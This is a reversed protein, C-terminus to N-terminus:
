AISQIRVEEVQEQRITSLTDNIESTQGKIIGIDVLLSDINTTIDGSLLDWTSTTTADLDTYYTTQETRMTDVVLKMQDMEVCLDSGATEPNGCFDEILVLNADITDFRTDIAAADDQNMANTALWQTDGYVLDVSDGIDELYTVLQTQLNNNVTTIHNTLTTESAGISTQIAVQSDGIQGSLSTNVDTLQTDVDVGLQTMQNTLDTDVTNILDTITTEATDINVNITDTSGVIQASINASVEDILITQADLDTGIEQIKTLAPNVHFSQSTKIEKNAGYTCTVEQEYTGQTAPAIDTHYWNGAVTSQSMAADIIWDTKDPYKITVTCDDVAYSDGRYDTLRVITSVDDGSWYETHSVWLVEPTAVVEKGNVYASRVFVVSFLVVILTMGM